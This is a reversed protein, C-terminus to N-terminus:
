RKRGKREPLKRGAPTHDEWERAMRKWKPSKQAKAHFMRRQAKSKFPM